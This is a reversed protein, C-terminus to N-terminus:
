TQPHASALIRAMLTLLPDVLGTAALRVVVVGTFSSAALLGLVGAPQAPAGGPTTATLIAAVVVIVIIVAAGAAGLRRQRPTTRIFSM